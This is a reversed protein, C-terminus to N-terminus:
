RQPSAEKVQSKLTATGVGRSCERSQGRLSKRDRGKRKYTSKGDLLYVVFMDSVKRISQKRYEQWLVLTYIRYLMIDKNM